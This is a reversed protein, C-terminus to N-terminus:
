WRSYAGNIGFIDSLQRFTMNGEPRVSLTGLQGGTDSQLELEVTRDSPFRLTSQSRRTRM